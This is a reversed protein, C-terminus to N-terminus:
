GGLKQHSDHENGVVPLLFAFRSPTDVDALSRIVKCQSENEETTPFRTCDRLFRFYTEFLNEQELVM